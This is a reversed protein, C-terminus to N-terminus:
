INLKSMWSENSETTLYQNLIQRSVGKKFSTTDRTVPLEGQSLNPLDEDPSCKCPAVPRFQHHVFLPENHHRRKTDWCCGVCWSNEVRNGGLLAFRAKLLLGRVVFDMFGDGTSLAQNDHPVGAAEYKTVSWHVVDKTNFKMLHCRVIIGGVVTIRANFFPESTPSNPSVRKNINTADRNVRLEEQSLILLFTWM